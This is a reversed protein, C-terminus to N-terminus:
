EAAVPDASAPHRRAYAGFAWWLILGLAFQPIAVVMSFSMRGWV